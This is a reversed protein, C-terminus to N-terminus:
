QAMRCCDLLLDSVATLDRGWAGGSTRQSKSFERHPRSSPLPMSCPAEELSTPLECLLTPKFPAFNPFPHEGPWCCRSGRGLVTPVLWAKVSLLALPRLDGIEPGVRSTGIKRSEWKGVQSPGAQVESSPQSGLESAAFTAVGPGGPVSPLLARGPRQEWIQLRPGKWDLSM